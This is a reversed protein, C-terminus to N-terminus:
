RIHEKIISDAIKLFINATPSEPFASIVPKGEAYSKEISEHMPISEMVFTHHTSAINHIEVPRGPLDSRNLIIRTKIEFIGMAKMILELDHAGLPTPETVAYAMDVGRLANIVNCHTGPATDVIIIDFNEADKAARERLATVVFSSEESGTLLEGTYLTINGATTMWTRGVPKSGKTIAESPCVLTCAECGNCEGILMPISDIPMLIANRRCVAICKACRVCRANDFIPIMSSVTEPLELKLGMLIAANPADVDADVMAVRYGKAAISCAINVAVTTKGVGGKGGTIGILPTSFEKHHFTTIIKTHMLKESIM